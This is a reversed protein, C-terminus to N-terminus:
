RQRDPLISVEHLAIMSFLSLCCVLYLTNQRELVVIVPLRCLFQIRLTSTKVTRSKRCAPSVAPVLKKCLGKTSVTPCPSTACHSGALTSQYDDQCDPCKELHQSIRYHLVNCPIEDKVFSVLHLRVHNCSIESPVSRPRKNGNFAGLAYATGFAVLVTLMTAGAGKLFKRRANLKLAQCETSAIDSLVGPPCPQWQEDSQTNSNKM